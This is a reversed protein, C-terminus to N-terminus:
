SAATAAPSGSGPRTPPPGRPPPRRRAAPLAARRVPRHPQHPGTAATRGRHRTRTRLHPSARRCTGAATRRLRAGPARPPTRQAIGRRLNTWGPAPERPSPQTQDTAPRPRPGLRRGSRRNPGGEQYVTRSVSVHSRWCSRATTRRGLRAQPDGLLDARRELGAARAAAGLAVSLGVRCDASRPLGNPDHEPMM